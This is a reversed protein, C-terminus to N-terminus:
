TGFNERSDRKPFWQFNECAALQGSKRRLSSISGTFHLALVSQFIPFPLKSEPFTIQPPLIFGLSVIVALCLSSALAGSIQHAASFFLLRSLPCLLLHWGSCWWPLKSPSYLVHLWLWGLELQSSVSAKIIVERCHRMLYSCSVGPWLPWLVMTECSYISHSSLKSVNDTIKITQCFSHPFTTHRKQIPVIIPPSSFHAQHYNTEYVGTLFEQEVKINNVCNNMIPWTKGTVAYASLM